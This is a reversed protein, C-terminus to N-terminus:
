TSKYFEKKATELEVVDEWNAGEYREVYPYIIDAKVSRWSDKILFKGDKYGIWDGSLVMGYSLYLVKM